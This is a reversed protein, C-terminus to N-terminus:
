IELNTKMVYEQVRESGKQEKVIRKIWHLMRHYGDKQAYVSAAARHQKKTKFNRRTIQKRM